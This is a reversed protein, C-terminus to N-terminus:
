LEMYISGNKKIIKLGEGTHYDITNGDRKYLKTNDKRFRWECLLLRDSNNLFVKTLGPFMKYNNVNNFPTDECFVAYSACILICKNEIIRNVWSYFNTYFRDVFSIDHDSHKLKDIWPVENKINHARYLEMHKKNREVDIHPFMTYFISVRVNFKTSVYEKEEKIWGFKDKTMHIFVPTEFNKDSFSSNPSIIIIHIQIDPTKYLVHFLYQPFLQKWQSYQIYEPQSKLEEMAAGIMIHYVIEKGTDKEFFNNMNILEHNYADIDHYGRFPTGPYMYYPFSLMIAFRSVNM